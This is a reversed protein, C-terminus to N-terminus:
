VSPRKKEMEEESIRSVPYMESLKEIQQLAEKYLQMDEFEDAYYMSGDETELLVRVAQVARTGADEDGVVPGDPLGETELLFVTGQSGKGKAGDAFELLEEVSTATEKM